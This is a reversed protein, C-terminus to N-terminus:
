TFDIRYNCRTSLRGSWSRCHVDTEESCSLEIERNLHDTVGSFMLSHFMLSVTWCIEEEGGWNRLDLSIDKVPKFGYREYLPRGMISLELYCELGREDAMKVVWDLLMGGAGRRHHDPHTVLTDLKLFSRTGMVERKTAHFLDFFANWVDQNSEAYPTPTTYEKDLDQETRTTRNPDLPLYQTLRAGAVITSTENDVCKAFIIGKNLIGDKISSTFADLTAQSPDHSPAEFYFIKNIDSRFAEHRIRM